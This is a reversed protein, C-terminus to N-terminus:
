NISCPNNPNTPDVVLGTDTSVVGSAPIVYYRKCIGQGAALAFDPVNNNQALPKRVQIRRLVDIAQGTSDIAIQAGYLPKQNNPAGAFVVVDAEGYYSSLRVYYQPDNLGTVSAQCYYPKGTNRIGNCGATFVVGQTDDINTSYSINGTGSSSPFIFASFTTRSLIDTSLNSGRTPVIDVRLIPADCNSLSAAAPFTGVAPCGSWAPSTPANNIEWNFYATDVPSGNGTDIPFVKSAMSVNQFEITKPTREITLCTVRTDATADLDYDAQTLPNEPGCDTKGNPFGGQAIADVAINVGSEAAYFARSSLNRDLTQRQEQRAIRAFSLTILSLILMLIITVLIAALGQQNHRLKTHTKM